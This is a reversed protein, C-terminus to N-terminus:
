NMQEHGGISKLKDFEITMELQDLNCNYKRKNQVFQRSSTSSHAKSMALINKIQSFLMFDPHDKLSIAWM